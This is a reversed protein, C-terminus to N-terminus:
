WDSELKIGGNDEDPFFTMDSFRDFFYATATLQTCVGLLLGELQTMPAKQGDGAKARGKCFTFASQLDVTRPFALQGDPGQMSKAFSIIENFTLPRGLKTAAAFKNELEAYLKEYLIQKPGEPTTTSLVNSIKGAAGAHIRSPPLEVNALRAAARTALDQIGSPMAQRSPPQLNIPMVKFASM